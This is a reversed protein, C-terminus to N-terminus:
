GVSVMYKKLPFKIQINLRQSHRLGEDKRSLKAWIWMSYKDPQSREQYTDATEPTHTVSPTDPLPRTLATTQAHCLDGFGSMFFYLDSKCMAKINFINNFDHNFYLM